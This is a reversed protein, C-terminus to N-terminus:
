VRERARTSSRGGKHKSTRTPPTPLRPAGVRIACGEGSCFRRRFAVAACRRSRDARAHGRFSSTIVCATGVAISANLSVFLVQSTLCLAARRASTLARGRLFWVLLSRPRASEPSGIAAVGMM